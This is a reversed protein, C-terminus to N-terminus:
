SQASVLGKKLTAIYQKPKTQNTLNMLNIDFTSFRIKYNVGFSVGLGALLFTFFVGYNMWQMSIWGYNFAENPVGIFLQTTTYVSM